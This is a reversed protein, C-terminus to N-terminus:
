YSLNCMQLTLIQKSIRLFCLDIVKQVRRARRCEEGCRRGQPRSSSPKEYAQPKPPALTSDENSHQYVVWDKGTGLHYSHDHVHESVHVDELVQQISAELPLHSHVDNHILTIDLIEQVHTLPGAHM